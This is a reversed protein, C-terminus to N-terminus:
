RAGGVTVSNIKIHPGSFSVPLPFQEGKGCNGSSIRYDDGIMEINKLTQFLNGTFTVNRVPEAIRGDRIYYCESPSFTFMEGGTQGGKSRKAYIGLKISAIIDAFSSNGNEISTNRMRVIPPYIYSIARANGTLGEGMIGATQRSHLRGVLIGEKIIDTKQTKVGEDDYVLSGRQGHDIGSDTINLIKPGFERGIKMIERLNPNKYVKDAESLHGFAEHVFLGTQSPGCVVPYIGSNVEPANLYIMVLDSLDEIEQERNLFTKYDSNNSWNRSHIETKGDKSGTVSVACTLEMREQSICSGQSNIFNLKKFKEEYVINVSRIDGGRSLPINAYTKVLDVKDSLPMERPDSILDLGIRDNIVPAEALSVKFKSFAGIESATKVTRKLIDGFGSLQNFTTFAWGNRSLARINGGFDRSINVGSLERGSFRITKTDTQEIHTEAYDSGSKKLLEKIEEDM